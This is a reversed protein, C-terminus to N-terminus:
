KSGMTSRWNGSAMRLQKEPSPGPQNDRSLSQDNGPGSRSVTTTENRVDSSRAKLKDPIRNSLSVKLRGGFAYKGNLARVARLAEEESRLDVFCYHHNGPRARTFLHPTIRKGIATRRRSDAINMTDHLSSMWKLISCRPHLRGSYVYVDFGAFLDRIEQQNHAQDIMKTLGGVFLRRPSKDLKVVEDFHQLARRPGQGQGEEEDDDEEGDQEDGRWDGWRQFAPGEYGEGRDQRWRSPNLPTKTKPYCPGVKVPRDFIRVGGLERLAREAADRTPLEVFCYGPNRASVPDISIHIKDFDGFGTQELMRELDHPKVSYLLNGLYIRRGEALALSEDTDM